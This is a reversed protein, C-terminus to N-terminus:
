RVIRREERGGEKRDKRRGLSEREKEREIEDDKRGKREKGEEWVSERVRGRM